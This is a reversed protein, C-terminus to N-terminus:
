LLKQLISYITKKGLFCCKIYNKRLMLSLQGIKLFFPNLKSLITEMLLTFGEISDNTLSLQYVASDISIVDTIWAYVILAEAADAQMHRNTRTPLFRRLDARKLASSLTSSDAKKGLPRRHQKSLALSYILNVFADGLSALEHDLLIDRINSYHPIFNLKVKDSRDRNGVM